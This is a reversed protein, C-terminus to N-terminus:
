GSPGGQDAFGGVFAQGHMSAEEGLVCHSDSNAGSPFGERNLDTPNQELRDIELMDDRDAGIDQEGFAIIEAEHGAM